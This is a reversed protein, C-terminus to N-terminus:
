RVQVVKPLFFHKQNKPLFFHKQNKHFKPNMTNKNWILNFLQRWLLMRNSPKDTIITVKGEISSQLGLVQIENKRLMRFLLIM